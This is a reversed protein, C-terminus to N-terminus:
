INSFWRPIVLFLIYFFLTLLYIFAFRLVLHIHIYLRLFVVYPYSFFHFIHFHLLFNCFVLILSKQFRNTSIIYKMTANLILTKCIYHLVHLWYRFMLIDSMLINTMLIMLINTLSSDIDNVASLLTRRQNTFLPSYLFFHTNTDVDLGCSCFPNVYRFKHQRLHSLGLRLRTLYKIEKCNHCNFVSNRSPRIFKLM